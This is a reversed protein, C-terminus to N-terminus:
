LAWSSLWLVMHQPPVLGARYWQSVPRPSFAVARLSRKSRRRVRFPFICSNNLKM